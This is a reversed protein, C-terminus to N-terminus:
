SSRRDSGTVVAIGRGVVHGFVRAGALAIRPPLTILRVAAAATSEPEPPLPIAGTPALAAVGVPEVTPVDGARPGRGSTTRTTDLEPEAAAEEEADPEAAVDADAHPEPPTRQEHTGGLATWLEGVTEYIRLDTLADLSTALDDPAGQKRAVTALTAARAPFASPLLWTALESRALVESHAPVEPEADLGGFDPNAGDEDAAPVEPERDERDRGSLAGGHLMPESEAALEDDVRPAHHSSGREM